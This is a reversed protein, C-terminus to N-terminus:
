SAPFNCMSKNGECSCEEVEKTGLCVRKDYMKAYYQCTNKITGSKQPHCVDKCPKDYYTCLGCPAYHPCMDSTVM